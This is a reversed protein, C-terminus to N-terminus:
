IMVSSKRDTVDKRHSFFMVVFMATAPCTVQLANFQDVRGGLNTHEGIATKRLHHLLM